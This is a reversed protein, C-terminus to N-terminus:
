NLSLEWDGTARVEFLVTGEPVKVTGDYPDTTNVLSSTRTGHPRIGFYRGEANGLVVLTTLGVTEDVRLLDSGSGLFTSGPELQPVQSISVLSFTWAGTARVEFGAIEGSRTGDVLVTGTFPDTTNILSTGSRGDPYVPELGFYRGGANASVKLAAFVDVPTELLVVDDGDGSLEVPGLDPWEFPEAGREPETTPEEAATSAPVPPPSAGEPEEDSDFLGALLVLAGLGILAWGWWPIPQPKAVQKGEAM